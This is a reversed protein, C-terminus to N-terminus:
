EDNGGDPGFFDAEDQNVDEVDMALQNEEHQNYDEIEYRDEFFTDLYQDEM